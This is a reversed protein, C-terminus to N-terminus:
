YLHSCLSTGVSSASIGSVLLRSTFVQFAVQRVFGNGSPFFLHHFSSAFLKAAVSRVDSLFTFFCEPGSFGSCNEQSLRTHPAFGPYRELCSFTWASVQSKLAPFSAPVRLDIWQFYSAKHTGQILPFSPSSSAFVASFSSPLSFGLSM